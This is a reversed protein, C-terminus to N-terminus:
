PQAERPTVRGGNMISLIDATKYRIMWGNIRHFPFGTGKSRNCRLTSVCLGTLEAVEHENLFPKQLLEAVPIIQRQKNGM